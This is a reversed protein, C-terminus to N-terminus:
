SKYLSDTQTVMEKLSLNKKTATYLNGGFEKLEKKHELSYRISHTVDIPSNPRILMGSYLNEIVESIGGVDTAIIPRKALGAELLVYPLSETRSTLTFIDFARLYSRANEVFGLFVVNDEIQLKKVLDKLKKEDEGKGAIFFGIKKNEKLIPAIGTLAIDLGKNEHLESLTGIWTTFSSKPSLKKRANIQTLLRVPDTGNHIVTMKNKIVPFFSLQDKTQKSVCITKHTLLVTLTHIVYFLTKTWASRKENFAWAHATFILRTRKNELAYFINYIHVALATVFGAMSSNVHVINPKENRLVTVIQWVSSINKTINIDRQLTPVVLTGVGGEKLKTHLLGPEGSAVTIDYEKHLQTALDFVYRQAGGFNGKTIIFLLKKQRKM